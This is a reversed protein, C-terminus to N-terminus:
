FFKIRHWMKLVNHNICIVTNTLIYHACKKKKKLITPSLLVTRLIHVINVIELMFGHTSENIENGHQTYATMAYCVYIERYFHVFTYTILLIVACEFTVEIM